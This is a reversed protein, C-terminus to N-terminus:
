PTLKKNRTQNDNKSMDIRGMNAVSESMTVQEGVPSISAALYSEWFSAPAIVFPVTFPKLSLPALHSPEPFTRTDDTMNIDEKLVGIEKEVRM